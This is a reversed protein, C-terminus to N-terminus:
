ALRFRQGCCAIISERFIIPKTKSLIEQPGKKKYSGLAQGMESKRYIYIYM